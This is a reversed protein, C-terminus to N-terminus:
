RTSQFETGRRNRKVTKLEASVQSFKSTTKAKFKIMVLVFRINFRSRVRRVSMLKKIMRKKLLLTSEGRRRAGIKKKVGVYCSYISVDHILNSWLSITVDCRIFVFSKM